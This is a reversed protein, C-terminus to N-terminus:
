TISQTNNIENDQPQDPDEEYDFEYHPSPYLEYKIYLQNKNFETAEVIEGFINLRTLYQNQESKPLNEFSLFFQHDQPKM